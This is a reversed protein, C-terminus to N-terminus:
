GRGSQWCQRVLLGWPALGLPMGHGGAVGAEAPVHKAAEGGGARVPGGRGAGWGQRQVQGWLGLEPVPREAADCRCSGGLCRWSLLVSVGVRGCAGM